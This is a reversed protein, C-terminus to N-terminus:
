FRFLPEASFNFFNMVGIMSSPKRDDADDGVNLRCIKGMM